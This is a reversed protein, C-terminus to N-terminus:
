VKTLNKLREAAETFPDTLGSGRWEVEQRAESKRAARRRARQRSAGNIRPVRSQLRRLARKGCDVTSHWGAQCGPRGPRMEINTMRGAISVVDARSPMALQELTKLM